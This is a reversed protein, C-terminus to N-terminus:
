HIHIQTHKHTLVLSSYTHTHKLTLTLLTHTESHWLTQMHQNTDTHTQALPTLTLTSYLTMDDKGGHQRWACRFTVDVCPTMVHVLTLARARARVYAGREWVTLAFSPLVCTSGTNHTRDRHTRNMAVHVGARDIRWTCAGAGHLNRSAEPGTCTKGCSEWRTPFRPPFALFWRRDSRFYAWQSICSKM